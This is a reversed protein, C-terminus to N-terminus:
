ITAVTCAARLDGSIKMVRMFTRYAKRQEADTSGPLEKVCDQISATRWCSGTWTFIGTKVEGTQRNTFTGVCYQIKM